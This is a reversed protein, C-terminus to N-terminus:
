RGYLNALETDFLELSTPDTPDIPIESGSARRELDYELDDIESLVEDLDEETVDPGLM